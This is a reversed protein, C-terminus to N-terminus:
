GGLIMTGVTAIGLTSTTLDENPMPLKTFLLNMQEFLLAVDESYTASYLIQRMIQLLEIITTLQVVDAKTEDIANIVAMLVDNNPYDNMSIKSWLHQVGEYDLFKKVDSM